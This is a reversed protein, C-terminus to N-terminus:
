CPKLVPRASSPLCPMEFRLLSACHLAFAPLPHVSSVVPGSLAALRLASVAEADFNNQFISSREVHQSPSFAADDDEDLAQM